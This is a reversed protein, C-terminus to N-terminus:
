IKMWINNLYQELISKINIDIGSCKLFLQVIEINGIEVSKQIATKNFAYILFQTLTYKAFNCIFISNM